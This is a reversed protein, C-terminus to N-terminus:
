PCAKEPHPGRLLRLATWAFGLCLPTYLLLNLRHFAPGAAEIGVELGLAWGIGALARIGLVALVAATVLAAQRGGRGYARLGVAVSATFLVAALPLVIPASFPVERGLVALSLTRSDGAPWTAGTAWYLHALGDAGLLGALAQGARRTVVAQRVRRVIHAREARPTTIDVM